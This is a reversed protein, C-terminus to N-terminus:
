RRRGTPGAAGRALTDGVGECPAGEQHSEVAQLLVELGRAVTELEEHGLSRLTQGLHERRLRWVIESEQHGRDTLSCLVVRRDQDSHERAALGKSELRTVLSTATPLGVGLHGALDSMRLPGLGHLLFVTRLQAMTLEMFLRTGEVPPRISLMLRGMLDM